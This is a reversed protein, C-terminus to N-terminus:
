LWPNAQVRLPIIHYLLLDLLSQRAGSRLRLRVGLRQPADHASQMQGLSALLAGRRVVPVHVRLAALIGRASDAM